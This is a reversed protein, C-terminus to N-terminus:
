GIDVRIQRLSLRWGEDTKRWEDEYVATMYVLPTKDEPRVHTEILV